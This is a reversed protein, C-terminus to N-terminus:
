MNTGTAFVNWESYEICSNKWILRLNTNSNIMIAYHMAKRQLTGIYM